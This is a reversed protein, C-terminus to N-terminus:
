DRQEEELVRRVEDRVLDPLEGRVWATLEARVMAGILEQTLRGLPEQLGASPRGPWGSAGASSSPRGEISAREEWSSLALDARALLDSPTLELADALQRLAKGSPSKSGNEIESVYPYSLLARQALERRKLGLEARRIHVARGM